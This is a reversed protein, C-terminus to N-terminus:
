PMVLKSNQFIKINRCIHGVLTLSSSVCYKMATMTITTMLIIMMTIITMSMTMTMIM